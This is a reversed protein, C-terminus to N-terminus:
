KIRQQNIWKENVLSLKAHLNDTPKQILYELLNTIQFHSKGEFSDRHPYIHTKVTMGTAGKIKQNCVPCAPVFNYLCLAYEPYESKIYYHDIDATNKISGNKKYGITYNMNCYPCVPVDMENLIRHRYENKLQKYNFIQCISNYDKM